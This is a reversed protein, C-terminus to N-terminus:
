DDLYEHDRVCDAYQESRQGNVYEPYDSCALESAPIVADSVDIPQIPPPDDGWCGTLTCCALLTVAALILNKM